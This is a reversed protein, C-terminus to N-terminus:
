ISCTLSKREHGAAPEAVNGARQGLRQALTKDAATNNHREVASYLLLQAVSHLKNRM